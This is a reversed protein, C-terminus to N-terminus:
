RKRLKLFSMPEEKERQGVEGWCIPTRCRRGYLMEYPPMKISSHYSNNYSFEALPLYADWPGGFDIISARLMDELTQITRESQGDTQPHYATSFHLKTGMDEHFKRWFHSTFRTDRDSVISVPIGHRAIVEKVYIDAIVESSSSERIPLFLASKTLRDVIVWISDFQDKPTKPLKTIFDMCSFPIWIRGYRVMLGRSDKSLHQLKGKIREQKPNRKLAEEQAERIREFFDNTLMVWLPSVRTSFHSSKRSLADAVVNAKGPHYLIECDYDKLLDLWRRQRNNLDRQEFFYKLSKHDSYISFKVGYLYHRWIKLAFVVAALELNHVPYSKEHTKLQRSAYAIVRVKQMLVCGLGNFSADCYVSFDEVGDPLTLIPEQSLKEKLTQFAGEQESKWDFKENKLTLKTLPSALKSFDQIFRRYYSPRIFGKDLLEQLQDMMERMETPALRYPAKAIHTASPILDIKFDIQREPPLGPLDDPFVDVFENVISIESMSKSEKNSDVVHALFAKCGRSILRRARVFTCLPFSDQNRESYIVMDRGNPAKLHVSKDTCCINAKHQGLWDMRLIVDFEGLGMPILNAKFNEFNITLSCGLYVNKIMYTQDGAVEVLLPPELFSLQLPICKTFRAAVFSRNAGYDFLIKAHTDHVLFTGSVVDTSEKAQALSIQFSRGRPNGVQKALKRENAKRAEAQREEETLLHCASKMHGKNFCKFCVTPKSPSFKCDRSIHGPQGCNFCAKKSPLLCVGSHHKGCNNWTPINKRNSGGGSSGSSRFKKNRSNSQETKRKSTEDNPMGQEVEHWRTVDVLQTFSEIQLLTIKERINKRLKRYFHEKLLRDDKLYEPYFQAKDLFQVRFENVNLTGQSDNM